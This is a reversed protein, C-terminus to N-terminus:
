IRDAVGKYEPPFGFLWVRYISEFFFLIKSIMMDIIGSVEGPLQTM